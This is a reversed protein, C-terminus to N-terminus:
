YFIGRFAFKREDVVGVGVFGGQERSVYVEKM